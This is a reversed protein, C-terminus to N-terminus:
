WLDKQTVVTGYHRFTAIAATANNTIYIAPYLTSSPLNSTLTNESVLKNGSADCRTLVVVLYDTNHEKKIELIYWYDVLNNAPFSSGLDITTALGSADNHIIHLNESTSMKGIGVCNILTDVGVNTPNTVGFASSIGNFFRTGSVNSNIKFKNRFSIKYSNFLNITMPTNRQFALTGAVATTSFVINPTRDTVNGNGSLTITGTRMLNGFTTANFTPLFYSLSKNVLTDFDVENLREITALTGSENPVNLVANIVPTSYNITTSTAGISHIIQSANMLHYKNTSTNVFGIGTSNVEGQLNSNNFIISTSGLIENDVNVVQQLSPTAGTGGSTIDSLLAITGSLPRLIITSPADGFPKLTFNGYNNISFQTWEGNVDNRNCMTLNVINNNDPHEVSVDFNPYDVDGSDINFANSVDGDSGLESPYVKFAAAQLFLDTINGEKAVSQLSPIISALDLADQLDTQDSLNGTIGGWLSPGTAGQIGQIGQSGTAGNLGNLGTAGTAGTAGIISPHVYPANQFDLYFTPCSPVENQMSLVISAEYGDLLSFKADAIVNASWGDLIQIGFQNDQYMLNNAAKMFIACSQNLNDTFNDKYFNDTITPEQNRLTLIAIEFLFEISNEAYRFGNPLIYVKPFLSDKDLDMESKFDILQVDNVLPDNKFLQYLYEIVVANPNLESYVM